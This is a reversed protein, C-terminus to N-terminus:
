DLQLAKNYIMKNLLDLMKIKAVIQTLKFLSNRLQYLKKNKLKNKIEIKSRSKKLM